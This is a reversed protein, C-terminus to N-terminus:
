INETPKKDVKKEKWIELVFLKNRSKISKRNRDLNKTSDYDTSTCSNWINQM